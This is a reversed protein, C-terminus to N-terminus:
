RRWPARLKELGCREILASAARRAESKVHEEDVKTSRGDEVVIEGGVITMEVDSARASYVLAALSRHLPATHAGRLGVVAIDALKGAALVGAESGLFRAGERTALEFAEEARSATPDQHHVRQLLIAQTMQEFMDQRHGSAGDFGLGVIAGADRLDRLRMVGLASYQHSIPCYAVGTQTTGVREVDEDSLFIMHALTAGHLLDAEALWEVAGTGYHAPYTEPDTRFECCHAHWGTGLERALEVSRRVLEQAVYVVNLPAPWVQVRRGRREEMAARTIALEEDLTYRFMARDLNLERAVDTVDGTMGRAVAGRLGVEEIAAAVAVTSDLDTPAYHNDVTATTGSKVAELAGLRVSAVAEARTINMSVPWMFESLWPWLEMGEGLGRTLFQFLHNHCDTFGPIVARGDCAITRAARFDALEDVSGVAVIREGTVAVAGPEFVRREDDVTLVAGGSLLLDCERTAAAGGGDSVRVRREAASGM